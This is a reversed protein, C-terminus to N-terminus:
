EDVVGGAKAAKAKELAVYYNNWDLASKRDNPTLTIFDVQKLLTDRLYWVVQERYYKQEELRRLKKIVDPVM